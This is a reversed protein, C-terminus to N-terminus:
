EEEGEKIEINVIAAYRIPYWSRPPLKRIKDNFENVHKELEPYIEYITCGDPIDVSFFDEDIEELYQPACILLRMDEVTRGGPIDEEIDEESQYYRDMLESYVLGEGDWEKRPLRKYAEIEKKERCTICRFDLYNIIEGCACRKHTCTAFRADHETFFKEGLMNVWMPVLRREVINPDDYFIPTPQKNHQNFRSIEEMM